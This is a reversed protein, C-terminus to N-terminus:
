ASAQEKLMCCKKYKKGSGCPCPDNRGVKPAARKVTGRQVDGGRGEVTERKRRRGLRAADDESRFVIHFLKELANNQVDAIMAQFMGYGESQYERKPDRQGYSRIGIGQRLAEMNQLHDIWQKDIETLLLQRYAHLHAEPGLVHARARIVREISRLLRTVVFRQLEVRDLDKVVIKHEKLEQTLAKLEWKEFPGETSCCEDMRDLLPKIVQQQHSDRLDRWIGDLLEQHTEATEIASCHVGMHDVIEAALKERDWRETAKSPCCQHIIKDLIEQERAEAALTINREIARRADDLLVDLEFRMPPAGTIQQVERGLEDLRWEPSPVDGVCYKKVLDTVVAQAPHVEGSSEDRAALYHTVRQRHETVRQRIVESLGRRLARPSPQQAERYPGAGAPEAPTEGGAEAAALKLRKLEDELDGVDPVKFTEKLSRELEDLKWTSPDSHPPCHAFLADEILVFIQAPGLEADRIRIIWEVESYFHEAIEDGTQFRDLDEVWIDFTKRAVEALSDLDRGSIHKPTAHEGVLKAITEEVMDLLRERQESLSRACETLALEFAEVPRTAYEDLPVRVGVQEYLRQELDEARISVLGEVTPNPDADEGENAFRGHELFWLRLSAAVRDRLVPDTEIVRAEQEVRKQVEENDSIAVAQYRGELIQRRMAYIAKRQQNMVDDYELLNKRIDFNREEVKTQAREVSKTVMRHEIPEGEPMGLKDMIMAVREGAFIRMLDDELSLYFRSTGPDGQRGARGRLQNDIRRSEHRETGLIHLGGAKIVSVREEACKKEFRELAQEYAAKYAEPDELGLAETETRALMIPNGGLLIDTGRGAMNTAVTVSGASGAQAVIFAEREHHKANLVNHNIGKRTLVRALDESKEVSVTGVLVPQGRGQCDLIEEVVATRKDRYSRYILDNFDTRVCPRNTPIVVVDLKYTKNFEQAETDATGTMGSLRDYLRFLNQFSITALTRNEEQVKVHEKAEIAQHLGDSWRRGPMLRGTFEDIIVIEGEKVAYNVDKKYCYHAKLAQHVHHLYEINSSDYLNRVSLLKEVEDVGEESLTVTKHEEDVNFDIDRRLKPIVANVTMYLAASEEAAGSIILPTRAEDVLISDAEDVIAYHLDRQVYDYISFRMNDRLYDFGFENNQGYTIDARYARKKEPRSQGHEIVGTSLGLFGYIQGMWEADRKALYDNVTVLHAGKGELANLYLALTAVLTKGEGTKMEAIKGQHLSIGGVLQVDYHRLGTTRLSAERVVAFAEPLVDDLSAGQDLKEKFEATKAKLEDSSLRRMQLEMDNIARITPRLRKMTREHATGFVRAFARTATKKVSTLINPM